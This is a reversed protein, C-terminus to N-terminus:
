GEKIYIRLLLSCWVMVNFSLKLMNSLMSLNSYGNITQVLGVMIFISNYKDVKFTTEFQLLSLMFLQFYLAVHFSITTKYPYYYFVLYLVFAFLPRAVM